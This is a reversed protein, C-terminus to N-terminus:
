ARFPGTSIGSATTSGTASGAPGYVTSAGYNTDIPGAFHVFVFGFSFRLIGVSPLKSAMSSLQEVKPSLAITSQSGPTRVKELKELM